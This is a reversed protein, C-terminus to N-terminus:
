FIEEPVADGSKGHRIDDAKRMLDANPLRPPDVSLIAQGPLVAQANGAEIVLHEEAARGNLIVAGSGASLGSLTLFGRPGIHRVSIGIIDGVARQDGLSAVLDPGYAAAEACGVNCMSGAPRHRLRHRHSLG